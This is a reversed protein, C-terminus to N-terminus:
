KMEFNIDEELEYTSLYRFMLLFFFSIDLIMSPNSSLVECVVPLHQPYKENKSFQNNTFRSGSRNLTYIDLYM